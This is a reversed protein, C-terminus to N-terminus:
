DCCRNPEYTNRFSTTGRKVIEHVIYDLYRGFVNVNRYLLSKVVVGKHSMLRIHNWDLMLRTMLQTKTHYVNIFLLYLKRDLLPIVAVTLVIYVTESEEEDYKALVVKAQPNDERGPVEQERDM